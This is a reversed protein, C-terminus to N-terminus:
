MPGPPLGLRAQALAWRGTTRTERISSAILNWRLGDEM